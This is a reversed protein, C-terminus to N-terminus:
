TAGEWVAGSHLGTRGGQGLTSLGDRPLITAMGPSGGGRWWTLATEEEGPPAGGCLNGRTLWRAGSSTARSPQRRESRNRSAKVLSETGKGEGGGRQGEGPLQPPGRLCGRTSTAEACATDGPAPKAAPLSPATSAPACSARSHTHSTSIQAEAGPSARRDQRMHKGRGALCM